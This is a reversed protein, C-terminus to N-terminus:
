CTPTPLVGDLENRFLPSFEMRIECWLRVAGISLGMYARWADRHSAFEVEDYLGERYQYHVNEWYRFLARTRARFQYLEDATLPEDTEGRRIVSAFQNNGAVAVLQEVIGMSLAHRTQARMLDRNQGLEAILLVIGALVALNAALGLWHSLDETRM